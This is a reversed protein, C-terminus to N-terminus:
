NARETLWDRAHAEKLKDGYIYQLEQAHPTLGSALTSGIVAEGFREFIDREANPINAKRVKRWWWM